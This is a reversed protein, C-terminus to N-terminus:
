YDHKNDGQCEDIRFIIMAYEKAEAIIDEERLDVLRGEAKYKLKLSEIALIIDYCDERKQKTQKWRM